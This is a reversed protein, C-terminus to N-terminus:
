VVVGCACRVGYVCACRWMFYLGESWLCMVEVGCQMYVEGYWMCVEVSYMCVGYLLVVHVGGCWM